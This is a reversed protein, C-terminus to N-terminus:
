KWVLITSLAKKWYDASDIAGPLGAALIAVANRLELAAQPGKRKKWFETQASQKMFEDVWLTVIRPEVSSLDQYLLQHSLSRQESLPKTTSIIYPGALYPGCPVEGQECSVRALLGAARGYDYAQLLEEASSPKSHGKVTAYTINLQKKPVSEIMERTSSIALFSRLTELYRDHTAENPPSGFLIYSYLGFGHEEHEDAGLVERSTVLAGTGLMLTFDSSSAMGVGTVVSNRATTRFGKAEVTIDYTGPPLSEVTYRGAANTLAIIVLGTSENKVSVQAGPVVAGSSDTIVGTLPTSV